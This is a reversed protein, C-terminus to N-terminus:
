DGVQPRPGRSPSGWSQLWRRVASHSIVRGERIDAEARAESKAEAEPSEFLGKETKMLEEYCAM